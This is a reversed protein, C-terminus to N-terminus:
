IAESIVEIIDKVPIQGKMEKSEIGDELMILCYPCSTTIIEPSAEILQGTRVDNMRKGSSTMWYHGGGAGCCFSRDRCKEPDILKVGPVAFLTKRPIDYIDNHRGLYCPDHYTITKPLHKSLPLRGSEVLDHILETAHLVEYHGGLQPYENKLTNFGHPCATVIKQIGYKAMVEINKKALMQFLYENGTRRAYDGCCNEESGLVGFNIGAAQLINVFAVAVQQARGDFAGACGVWYLLDVDREEQLIKINLDTAWNNRLAAGAGWTNGYIEMNRYVPQIEAPFASEMLVRHRRLELIKDIYEIFVPCERECAGCTTCSWLVDDPIIDGPIARTFLAKRGSFSSNAYGFDRIDMTLRKPSLPRGVANAPCNDTCRGCETCTCFDLLHKWTFDSFTRVGARDLLEIDAADWQPPKAIGPHMKKFFVNPLATIVHFHKSLPLINLFSFFCLLHLWYSLCNVAMLMKMSAGSLFIKAIQGSILFGSENYGAELWSGEYLMDTIMLFAILSLVLYAEFQHGNQYRAPKKVARRWIAIGCSILVILIFLDKLSNYFAGLPSDLFSLRISLGLGGIVLTVSHLALIVFGWFIIMHIVGTMLYRLQRKQLFGDKILGKIREGVATFRPDPKGVRILYIRKIMLVCFVFVGLILILRTFYYGPVGLYTELAPHNPHM